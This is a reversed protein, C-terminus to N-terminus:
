SILRRKTTWVLNKLIYLTRPIKLLLPAEEIFTKMKYKGRRFRSIGTKVPVANESFFGEGCLHYVDSQFQACSHTRLLFIDPMEPFGRCSPEERHTRSPSPAVPFSVSNMLLGFFIDAATHGTEPFFEPFCCIRKM